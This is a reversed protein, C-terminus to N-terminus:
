SLRASVAARAIRWWRREFDRESRVLVQPRITMVKTASLASSWLLRVRLPVSMEPRVPSFTLTPDRNVFHASYRSIRYDTALARETLSVDFARETRALLEVRSLSDFGLERDLLSDLTVERRTAPRLEVAMRRTIDLVVAEPDRGRDPGNEEKGTSVRRRQIPSM